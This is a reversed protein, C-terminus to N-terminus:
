LIIGDMLGICLELPCGKPVFAQAYLQARQVLLFKNPFRILESFTYYFLTLTHYFIALLASQHRGFDREAENLTRPKSLIRLLICLVEVPVIKYRRQLTQLRGTESEEWPTLKGIDVIDSKQFRFTKVASEDSMDDLQFTHALIGLHREVQLAHEETFYQVQKILAISMGPSDWGASILLAETHHRRAAISRGM